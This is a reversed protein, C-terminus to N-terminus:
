RALSESPLVIFARDDGAKLSGAGCVWGKLWSRLCSVCIGEDCRCHPLPELWTVPVPQRTRSAERAFTKRGRSADRVM